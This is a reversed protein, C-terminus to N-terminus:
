SAAAPCSCCRSTSKQVSLLPFIITRDRGGGKWESHTKKKLDNAYKRIESLNQPDLLTQFDM